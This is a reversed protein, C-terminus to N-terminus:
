TKLRSKEQTKRGNLWELDSRIMEQARKGFVMWDARGSTNKNNIVTL